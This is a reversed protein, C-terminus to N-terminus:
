LSRQIIKEGRRLWIRAAALPKLNERYIATKLKKRMKRLICVRSLWKPRNQGSKKKGIGEGRGRRVLSEGDGRGRRWEREGRGRRGWERAEREREGGRERKLM